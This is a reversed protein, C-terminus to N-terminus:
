TRVGQQRGQMQMARPDYLCPFEVEDDGDVRPRTYTPIPGPSVRKREGVTQALPRDFVSQGRPTSITSTASRPVSRLSGNWSLRKSRDREAVSGNPTLMKATLTDEVRLTREEGGEAEAHPAMPASYDRTPPKPALAASLRKSFLKFKQGSEKRGTSTVEGFVAAASTATRPRGGSVSKRTFFTRPSKPSLVPPTLPFQASDASALSDNGLDCEGSSAYASPLSGDGASSAGSTTSDKRAPQLATADHEVTEVFPAPETGFPNGQDLELSGPQITKASRPAEEVAPDRVVEIRKPKTKPSVLVETTAPMPFDMAQIMREEGQMLPTCGPYLNIRTWESTWLSAPREIGAWAWEEGRIWGPALDFEQLEEEDIQGTALDGAYRSATGSAKVKRIFKYRRTHYRLSRVPHFSDLLMQSLEESRYHVLPTTRKAYTATKAHAMADILPRRAAPRCWPAVRTASSSTTTILSRVYQLALTHIEARTSLPSGLSFDVLGTKVSEAISQPLMNRLMGAATTPGCRALYSYRGDATDYRLDHASM